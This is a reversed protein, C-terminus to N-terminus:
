TRLINQDHDVKERFKPDPSTLVERSKRRPM